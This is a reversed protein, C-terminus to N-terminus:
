PQRRARTLITIGAGIGWLGVTEDGTTFYRRTLDLRLGVGEGFRAIVGAGLYGGAVLGGAVITSVGGRLLVVADPLAVNFAPGFDALFAAGGERAAAMLGFDVSAARPNLTTARLAFLTIGDDEYRLQEFGLSVASGRLWALSDPPRQATALSGCAAALAVALTVTRQLRVPM